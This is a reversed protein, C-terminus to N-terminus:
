EYSFPGNIGAIVLPTKNRVSISKAHEVLIQWGNVGNWRTMRNDPQIIWPTGDIDVSIDIAEGEIRTWSEDDIYKRISNDQQVIYVDKELCGGISIKRARVNKSIWDSCVREYVIGNTGVIWFNNEDFVCLDSAGGRMFIWDRHGDWKYVLADFGM